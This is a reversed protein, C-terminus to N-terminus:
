FFRRFFNNRFNKKMCLIVTKAEVLNGFDTPLLTNAKKNEWIVRYGLKRYLNVAPTNRKEVYLYCEIFGWENRVVNEVSKVLDEAIGVRRYKKSVALNSMLPATIKTSDGPNKEPILDIEVGACGIVESEGSSLKKVNSIILESKSDGYFSKTYRRRFELIQLREIGSRQSDSLTKTKGSKSSWFADTFFKASEKLKEKDGNSKQVSINRPRFLIAGIGFVSPSYSFCCVIWTNYTLLLLYLLFLDNINM